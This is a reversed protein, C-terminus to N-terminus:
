FAEGNSADIVSVQDMMPLYLQKCFVIAEALLADKCVPADPQCYQEVFGDFSLEAFSLLQSLVPGTEDAAYQKEERMLTQRYHEIDSVNHNWSRHAYEDGDIFEILAELLAGYISYDSANRKETAQVYANAVSLLFARPRRNGVVYLQALKSLYDQADSSSLTKFVFHEIEIQSLGGEGSVVQSADLKNAVGICHSEKSLTEKTDATCLVLHEIWCKFLDYTRVNAVRYSVAGRSFVNSLWGQLRLEISANPVLLNQNVELSENDRGDNAAILWPSLYEALSRVLFAQQLFAVKGFNGRPLGGQANLVKYVPDFAAQSNDSDMERAILQYKLLYQQLGDLAFNEDDRLQEGVDEFFVKLQQNFFAQVPSRWYATFANLDVMLAAVSGHDGLNLADQIIDSSVFPSLASAKQVNDTNSAASLQSQALPLWQSAFSAQQNSTTSVRERFNDSSFATMGHCTVFYERVSSVVDSDKLRFRAECYELLESVLISPIIESNDRISHGTYSIYLRDQASQVAELFLYRDDDRRSRDGYEFRGNMLDFGLPLQQRPYASSDMGLLCVVKFPVARMPMLTCFNVQGALFKQSIREDILIESMVEQIVSISLPLQNVRAQELEQLWQNIGHSIQTIQRQEDEDTANFFGMMLSMLQEHWQTGNYEQLCSDRFAILRDLMLSLKGLLQANLGEIQDYPHDAHFGTIEDESDLLVVSSLEFAPTAYGSLMRKIGFLWSNQEDEPLEHYKATNSDLGWRIEADIIWNTLVPLDAADIDFAAMVAPVQILSLLESASSRQQSISLLWIYAQIVSHYANSSLDSVSYPIATEASSFVAKIYPSYADIDSVMVVIDKPTLDPDAQLASLLYDHLVEVERMASHCVNVTLSNDHEDLVILDAENVKLVSKGDVNEELSANDQDYTSSTSVPSLGSPDKLNLMDQQIHGLVTNASPEVFAEIAIAGQEHQDTFLRQMDRGVKGWSALLSNGVSAMLHHSPENMVDSKSTLTDSKPDSQSVPNPQLRNQQESFPPTTQQNYFNTRAQNLIRALYKADYIDGWYYQCPNSYMLHVDIHQGMANLVDLYRPPLASIGFVFIRKLSKIEPPCFGAKLRNICDDFLNARHFHSLAEGSVPDPAITQEFLQTWLLSQWEDEGALEPVLSQNQWQNIWQPRYVLYQDFLDAVRASLQYLKLQDQDNELYETLPKFVPNSAQEPILQMLRWTMQAKTFASREPVDDLVQKFINWIFTAPLPFDINAAIGMENALQLRLWQSMGPSQILITEKAFPHSLPDREMLQVVLSKLVTVDNSHYIAFM